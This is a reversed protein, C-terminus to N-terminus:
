AAKLMETMTHQILQEFASELHMTAGHFGVSVDGGIALIIDNATFSAVVSETRRDFEGKKDVDTGTYIAIGYFTGPAGQNILNRDRIGNYLFSWGTIIEVQRSLNVTDGAYIAINAPAVAAAVGTIAYSAPDVQKQSVVEVTAMLTM